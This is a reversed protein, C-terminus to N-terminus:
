RGLAAASPGDSGVPGAIQGQLAGRVADEGFVYGATAIVIILLPTISFAFYYSIAAGMSPAYDDVWAVAPKKCIALLTSPKVALPNTFVKQVTPGTHPM